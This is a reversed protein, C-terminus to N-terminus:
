AAAVVPVAGTDAAALACVEGETEVFVRTFAAGAELTADEDFAAGAAPADLADDSVADGAELFETAAFIVRRAPAGRFRAFTDLRTTITPSGLM